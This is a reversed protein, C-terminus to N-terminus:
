GSEGGTGLALNDTVLVDLVLHHLGDLFEGDRCRSDCRARRLRSSGELFVAIFFIGAWGLLLALRRLPPRLVAGFLSMLLVALVIEGFNDVTLGPLLWAIAAFALVGVILSLGTSVVAGLLHRRSTSLETGQRVAGLTADASM